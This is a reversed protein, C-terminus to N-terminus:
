YFGCGLDLNAFRNEIEKDLDVASGPGRSAATSAMDGPASSYGKGMCAGGNGGGFTPVTTVSSQSAANGCSIGRLHVPQLELPSLRGGGGASLGPQQQQQQRQRQQQPQLQPMRAEYESASDIIKPAVHINGGRGGGRPGLLASAHPPPFAHRVNHLHPQASLGIEEAMVPMSFRPWPKEGFVEAMAVTDTDKEIDLGGAPLKELESSLDGGLSPMMGGNLFGYQFSNFKSLDYMGGAGGVSVHPGGTSVETGSCGGGSATSAGDESPAVSMSTRASSSTLNLIGATATSGREGSSGSSGGSGGPGLEGGAAQVMAPAGDGVSRVGPQAAASHQQPPLSAPQQPQTKQQMMLHREEDTYADALVAVDMATLLGLWGSTVATEVSIGHRALEQGISVLIVKLDEKSSGSGSNASSFPAAAVAAGDGSGGPAMGVSAEEEPSLLLGSAPELRGPNVSSGHLLNVNSGSIARGSSQISSPIAGPQLHQAPIAGLVHQQPHRLIQQQDLPAGLDVVSLGEVMSHLQQQSQLAQQHQQQQQQLRQTGLMQLQGFTLSSPDLLAASSSSVDVDGTLGRGSPHRGLSVQHQLQLLQVHPQLQQDPSQQQQLQLLPQQPQQAGLITDAQHLSSLGASPDVVQVTRHAVQSLGQSPVLGRATGGTAGGSTQAASMFLVQAPGSVAAQGSSALHVTQLGGNLHELGNTGNSGGRGKVGGRSKGSGVAGGGAASLATLLGQGTLQPSTQLMVQQQSQHPPPPQAQVQVQIPGPSVGTPQGPLLQQRQQQLKAAKGRSSESLMRTLTAQDMVTTATTGDTLTINVVQQQPQPQALQQQQSQHLQPGGVATVMQIHQSTHIVQQHGQQLPGGVVATGMHNPPAQLATASGTGSGPGGAVVLTTHRQQQQYQHQAGGSTVLPATANAMVTSVSGMPQMTSGQLQPQMALVTKLGGAASVASQSSSQQQQLLHAKQVQQVLAAPLSAPLLPVAAGGSVNSTTASRVGTVPNYTAVTGLKPIRVAPRVVTTVAPQPAYVTQLTIPGNGVPRITPGGTGAPGPPRITVTQFAVPASAQRQQQLKGQVQQPQQQAHQQQVILQKQPQAVLVHPQTPPSQQLLVVKAPQGQAQQPQQQAPGSAAVQIHGGMPGQLGQVQQQLAQQQPPLVNQQRITIVGVQQQPRQQTSTPVAVATQVITTNPYPQGAKVVRTGNTINYTQPGAPASHLQLVQQAQLQQGNQQFSHVQMVTPAQAQSIPAQQAARGSPQQASHRAFTQSGSQAVLNGTTADIYAVECGIPTMSHTPVAAGKTASGGRSGKSSRGSSSSPNRQAWNGVSSSVTVYGGGPLVQVAQLDNGAYM